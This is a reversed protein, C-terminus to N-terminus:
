AVAGAMARGLRALDPAAGQVDIVDSVRNGALVVIRDSIGIVEDLDASIVVVAAGRAAAEALRNRIAAAAALDLGHTPGHAIVVAPNSAVERGVMLKQQNGGSLGGAPLAPNPPQVHFSECM